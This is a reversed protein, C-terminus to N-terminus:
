GICKLYKLKPFRLNLYLERVEHMNVYQQIRGIILSSNEVTFKANGLYHLCYYQYLKICCANLNVEKENPRSCKIRNPLVLEFKISNESSSINDCM